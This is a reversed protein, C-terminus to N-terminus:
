QAEWGMYEGEKTFLFNNLQTEWSSITASDHITQLQLIMRAFNSPQKGPINLSACLAYWVNGCDARLGELETTYHEDKILCGVACMAGNNFGRYACGKDGLSRARQKLLHAKVKEYVEFHTILNM